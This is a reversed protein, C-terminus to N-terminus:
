LMGMSTAIDLADYDPHLTVYAKKEGKRTIQTTVKEVKVEFEQEVAKKVQNKTAKLDVIFIIKNEMEVQNMSKETLHPYQLIDWTTAKTAETKEQKKEEKKEKKPEEKKEKSKKEKAKKESPKKETRTKQKTKGKKPREEKQTKKESKKKQKSKEKEKNSSKGKTKKGKKKTKGAM